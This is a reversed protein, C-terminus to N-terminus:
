EGLISAIPSVGKRASVDALNRRLHALVNLCTRLEEESVGELVADRIESVEADIQEVVPKGRETLHIEKVRRDDASERREILHQGELSDLIRVLTPGSINMREALETQKIGPLLHAWSLVRWRPQTQDATKLREDVLNRWIRGTGLLWWHLSLRLGNLSDPHYTQPVFPDSTLPDGEYRVEELKGPKRAM